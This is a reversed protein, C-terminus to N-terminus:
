KKELEVLITLIDEINWHSVRDMTLKIIPCDTVLEIPNLNVDDIKMYEVIKPHKSVRESCQIYEEIFAKVPHDTSLTNWLPNIKMTRYVYGSGYQRINLIDSTIFTVKNLLYDVLYDEFKISGNDIMVQENKASVMCIDSKGYGLAELIGKLSHNNNISEKLLDNKINYSYDYTSNKVMYFKPLDDIDYTQLEWKDNCYRSRTDGIMSIRVENPLLVTKGGSSARYPQPLTSTATFADTPIGYAILANYAQKGFYMAGDDSSNLGKVFTKVRGEGGRNLDDNFWKGKFSFSSSSKLKRRGYSRYYHALSMGITENNLLRSPSSIDIGNWMFTVNKSLSKLFTFKTHILNVAKMADLINGKDAISNALKNAFDIAIFAMKNDLWQKTSEDYSLAERSPVFDVNGMDAYIVLGAHDFLERHTYGLQYTEIPYAVNGMVVFGKGHDLSEYSEWGEGSFTITDTIWDISGGSIEPKVKFFRCAKKVEMAFTLFDKEEVPIQVTVGNIETTNETSMLAIAPTDQENFYANYIRKVGEFISTVLFSDSYSFPSKSGLGLCGTQENTETKTSEFYTAYINYINEHSIGTGFDQVAFFPELKNPLHIHIPIDSKGCAIHSDVANCSIERCVALIKNSYLQSSLISFAKKSAKIKFQSDGTINGIREITNNTDLLKM